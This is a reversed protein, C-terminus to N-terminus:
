RSTYGAASFDNDDYGAFNYGTSLWLNKFLKVGVSPGASYLLTNSNSSYLM